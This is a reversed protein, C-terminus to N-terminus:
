SGAQGKYLKQQAQVQMLEQVHAEASELTSFFDWAVIQNDVNYTRLAFGDEQVLIDYTKDLFNIGPGLLLNKIEAQLNLGLSM